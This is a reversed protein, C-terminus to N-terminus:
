LFRFVARIAKSDTDWLLRIENVIGQGVIFSEIRRDITQPGIERLLGYRM